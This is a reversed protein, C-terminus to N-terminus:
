LLVRVWATVYYFCVLTQKFYKNRLDLSLYSGQWWNWCPWGSWGCNLEFWRTHPMLGGINPSISLLNEVSCFSFFCDVARSWLSNHLPSVGHRWGNTQLDHTQSVLQRWRSNKSGSSGINPYSPLALPHIRESCDICGVWPCKVKWVLLRRRHQLHLRHSNDIACSTAVTDLVAGAPCKSKSHVSCPGPCATEYMSSICSVSFRATNEFSM